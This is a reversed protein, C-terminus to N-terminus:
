FLSETESDNVDDDPSPQKARSNSSTRRRARSESKQELSDGSDDDFPQVVPNGDADVGSLLEIRREATKLIEHCRKLLAVGAEYQKLAEALGTNGDELQRVISELSSLAEEFKGADPTKDATEKQTM